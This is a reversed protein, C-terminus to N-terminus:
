SGRALNGVGHHRRVERLLSEVTIPKSIYADCGAALIKERDSPMAHATLAVLPMRRTAPDSKLRRAPERGDMGPIQIDLLTLDPHRRRVAELAAPGDTARLVEYGEGHLVAELFELNALKDEVVLISQQAM